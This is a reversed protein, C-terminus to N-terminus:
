PAPTPLLTAYESASGDLVPVWLQKGSVDDYQIFVPFLSGAPADLGSLLLQSADPGGLSKVSGANVFVSEDVKTKDSNQYQLNVQIGTDSTNVLNILLSANQGDATLLIANRVEIQGVTAGIGDSADYHKTTVQPTMYTCATTGGLVLAVLVASAALRARM